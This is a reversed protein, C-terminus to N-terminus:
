EFKLVVASSWPVDVSLKGRKDVHVAEGRTTNQLLVAKGEDLEYNYSYGDYTVGSIADSGNAMLRQLTATKGHAARGLDFSYTQVPRPFPTIYEENYDTANYSMLNIVIMSELEDDAYTAYAAELENPLPINVVSPINSTLDGLFGAVAINGYYPAKTGATDKDTDIPQWSQYRYNTGMHMHVRSINNAACYLNFDVAWLAAGFTNSLGPRGQRYLSNHEGLIFPADPALEHLLRSANLQKNISVINSTHNM